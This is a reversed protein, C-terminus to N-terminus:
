QSLRQTVTLVNQMQHWFRIMQTHLALVSVIFILVWDMTAALLREWSGALSPDRQAPTRGYGPRGGLQRGFPGPQAQGYGPQGYGQQGYGQPRFGPQAGGPQPAAQYPAAATGYRPRGPQPPAPYAEPVSEGQSLYPSPWFPAPEAVGEAAPSAQDAGPGPQSTAPDQSTMDDQQTM